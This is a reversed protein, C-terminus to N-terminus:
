DDITEKNKLDKVLLRKVKRFIKKFYFPILLLAAIIGQVFMSGIGPDIYAWAPKSIVGIILIMYIIKM